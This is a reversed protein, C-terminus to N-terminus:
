NTIIHFKKEDKSILNEMKAFATNHYNNLVHDMFNSTPQMQTNGEAFCTRSDITEALQWSIPSTIKFCEILHSCYDENPSEWGITPFAYNYGKSPNVKFNHHTSQYKLGIVGNNNLVWQLILNSIIYEVNFPANPFEKQFACAQVIPWTAIYSKYNNVFHKQTQEQDETNSLLSSLSCSLDLVKFEKRPALCSMYTNNWNLRNTELLCVFLSSGLYLFPVGALSYRQAKVLHRSKYPIHFMEKYDQLM